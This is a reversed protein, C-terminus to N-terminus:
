RGKRLWQHLSSSIGTATREKNQGELQFYILFGELFVFCIYFGEWFIKVFALKLKGRLLIRGLGVHPLLSVRWKTVSTPTGQSWNGSSMLALM